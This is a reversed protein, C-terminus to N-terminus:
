YILRKLLINFISLAQSSESTVTNTFKIRITVTQDDFKRQAEVTTVEDDLKYISYLQQGDFSACDNFLHKFSYLLGIRLRKSDIAPEFDVHYQYLTYDSKM